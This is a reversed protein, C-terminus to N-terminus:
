EGARAARAPAAHLRRFAQEERTRWSLLAAARKILLQAPDSDGRYSLQCGTSGNARQSSTRTAAQREHAAACFAECLGLAQRAM